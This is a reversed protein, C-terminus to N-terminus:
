KGKLKSCYFKFFVGGNMESIVSEWDGVEASHVRNWNVGLDVRGDEEGYDVVVLAAILFQGTYYAGQEACVDLAVDFYGVAKNNRV